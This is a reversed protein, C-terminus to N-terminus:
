KELLSIIKAHPSCNLCNCFLLSFCFVNPDPRTPTCRKKVRSSGFRGTKKKKKKKESRLVIVGNVIM